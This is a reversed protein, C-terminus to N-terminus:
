SFLFFYSSTTIHLFFCMIFPYLATCHLSLTLYYLPRVLLTHMHTNTRVNNSSLTLLTFYRFPSNSNLIAYFFFVLFIFYSFPWICLLLLLYHFTVPMCISSSFMSSLFCCLLTIAICIM